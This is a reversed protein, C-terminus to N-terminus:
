YKKIKSEVSISNIYGTKSFGSPNNLLYNIVDATVYPTAYSTGNLLRLATTTTDGFENPVGHNCLNNARVTLDIKTGSISYNQCYPPEGITLHISDKKSTVSIVNNGVEPHDAYCAPYYPHVDLDEHKNGAAAVLIMNADKARRMVEDFVPITAKSSAGWSANVVKMNNKIAYLMACLNDYLNGINNEDFTKLGVISVKNQGLNKVIIRTIMTGHMIPNVDKVNNTKDLFNYNLPHNMSGIAPEPNEGTDIIGVLFLLNEVAKGGGQQPDTRSQKMHEGGEAVEGHPPSSGGEIGGGPNLTTEILHLDKGALVLFNKDCDCTRDKDQVVNIANSVKFVDVFRSFINKVSQKDQYVASAKQRDNRSIDEINKKGLLIQWRWYGELEKEVNNIADQRNGQTTDKGVLLIMRRDRLLYGAGKVYVYSAYKPNNKITSDLATGTPPTDEEGVIKPQSGLSFYFFVFFLGLLILILILLRKM